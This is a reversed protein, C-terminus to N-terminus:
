CNFSRELKALRIVMQCIYEKWSPTKMENSRWEDCFVKLKYAAVIEPSVCELDNVTEDWKQLIANEDVKQLMDEFCLQIKEEESWMVCQHQIQSPHDVM